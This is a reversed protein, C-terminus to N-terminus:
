SGFDARSTNVPYESGPEGSASSPQRPPVFRRFLTLADKRSLRAPMGACQADFDEELLFAAFGIAIFDTDLGLKTVAARIQSPTYQESAGYARQLWPALERAYRRAARNTRIAGWFAM